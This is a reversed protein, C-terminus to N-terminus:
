NLTPNANFASHFFNHLSNNCLPMFMPAPSPLCHVTFAFLHSSLLVKRMIVSIDTTMWNFSAAEDRCGVQLLFLAALRLAKMIVFHLLSLVRKSIIFSANLYM